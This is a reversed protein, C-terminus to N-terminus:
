FIRVDWSSDCIKLVELAKQFATTNSGEGADVVMTRKDTPLKQATLLLYLAICNPISECFDVCYVADKIVAYDGMKFILGCILMNTIGPKPNSVLNTLQQTTWKTAASFLALNKFMEDRAANVVSFYANYKPSGPTSFFDTNPAFFEAFTKVLDEQSVPLNQDKASIKSQFTKEQKQIIKATEETLPSQVIHDDASKKAGFLKKLLSM